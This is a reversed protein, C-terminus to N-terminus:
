ATEFFSLYRRRRFNEFAGVSVLRNVREHFNEWGELLVRRIHTTDTADFMKRVHKAQRM